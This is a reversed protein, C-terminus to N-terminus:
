FGLTLCCTTIMSDVINFKLDKKETVPAPLTRVSGKSETYVLVALGLMGSLGSLVLMSSGVSDKLFCNGDQGGEFSATLNASYAVGKCKVDNETNWEVCQSICSKLDYETSRTLDSVEGDGYAIRGGSPWDVACLLTFVSGDSGTVTTMNQGPCPNAATGTTGSTVPASSTKSPKSVTTTESSSAGTTIPMKSGKDAESTTSTTSSDSTGSIPLASTSTTNSGSTVPDSGRTKIKNILYSGGVGCGVAAAIVLLISVALLSRFVTPRLGCVRKAGKTTDTKKPGDDPTGDSISTGARDPGSVYYAEERSIPVEKGPEVVVELGEYSKPWRGFGSAVELGDCGSSSRKLDSVLELGDCSSSSRKLDSVLELGEM